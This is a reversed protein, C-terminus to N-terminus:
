DKRALGKKGRPKRRNGGTEGHSSIIGGVPSIKGVMVPTKELYEIVKEVTAGERVFFARGGAASGRRKMNPLRIYGIKGSAVYGTTYDPDDSAGLEAVIAPSQAVKSALVLAEKIRFHNLGRSALKKELKRAAKKEMGLMSARVGRKMDPELRKGSVIGILAAGRMGGRDIVRCATYIAKGSVGLSKLLEAAKQRAGTRDRADLTFVPLSSVVIPRRKLKEIRIIAEDPNGKSNNFARFVYEKGMLPLDKEEYIGEAGSIHM